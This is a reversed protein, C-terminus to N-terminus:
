LFTTVVALIFTSREYLSMRRWQDVWDLAAPDAPYSAAVQPTLASPHLPLYPPSTTVSGADAPLIAVSSVWQKAMAAGLGTGLVGAWSCDKAVDNRTVMVAQLNRGVMAAGLTKGLDLRHQQLQGLMGLAPSRGVMAAGLTKGLDLRHQQLQGLMGLAPSRGVM